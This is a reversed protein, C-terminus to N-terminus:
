EDLKMGEDYQEETPEDTGIFDNFRIILHFAQRAIHIAQLSFWKVRGSTRVIDGAQVYSSLLFRCFPKELNPTQFSFSFLYNSRGYSFGLCQKTVTIVQRPSRNLLQDSPGRPNSTGPQRDTPSGGESFDSLRALVDSAIELAKESLNGLWTRLHAQM